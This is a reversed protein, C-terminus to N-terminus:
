AEIDEDCQERIDNIRLNREIKRITLIQNEIREQRENQPRM